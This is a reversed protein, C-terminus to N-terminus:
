KGTWKGVARCVSVYNGASGLVDLEVLGRGSNGLVYLDETNLLNVHLGYDM